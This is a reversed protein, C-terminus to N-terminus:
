NDSKRRPRARWAQRMEPGSLECVNLDPREHQLVIAVAEAMELLETETLEVADPWNQMARNIAM